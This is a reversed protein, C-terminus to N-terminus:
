SVASTLWMTSLILCEYAYGMGKGETLSNANSPFDSLHILNFIMGKATSSSDTFKPISNLIETASNSISPRLKKVNCVGLNFLIPLLLPKSMVSKNNSKTSVWQKDTKRLIVRLLSDLTKLAGNNTEINVVGGQEDIQFKLTLYGEVCEHRFFERYTSNFEKYIFDQISKESKLVPFATHEQGLCSACFSIFVLKIIFFKYSM